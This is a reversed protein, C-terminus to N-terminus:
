TVEHTTVRYPPRVPSIFSNSILAEPKPNLDLTYPKRRRPHLTEIRPCDNWLFSEFALSSSRPRKPTAHPRSVSASQADRFGM